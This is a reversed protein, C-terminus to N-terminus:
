KINDMEAWRNKYGGSAFMEADGRNDFPIFQGTGIAYNLAKDDDLEILRGNFNVITPYVMYVGDVEASAMRHTSVSGDENKVVPYKSPSLYRQVFDFHEYNKDPSPKSYNNRMVQLIQERSMDDPFQIQQDTGKVQVIPM